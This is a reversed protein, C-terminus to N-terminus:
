AIALLLAPTGKELEARAAESSHSSEGGDYYFGEEDLADIDKCLRLACVTFTLTGEGAGHRFRIKDGVRIDKADGVFPLPYHSVNGKAFARFESESIFIERTTPIFVEDETVFVNVRGKSVAAGDIAVLKNGYFVSCDYDSRTNDFMSAYYCPTHGVVLTKGEPIVFNPYRTHWRLWRANHWKASSAYRFDNEQADDPLWGHVFIFNETEYYDYMSDILNILMEAVRRQSSEIINLLSEGHYYTFFENLTIHTGNVFQLDAVRGTTLSQMLIDEHNGRILIKNKIGSLYELVRRNESGRDFLDGLVVLLHNPNKPDFGAECFSNILATACGHIDSVAFIKLKQKEREMFILSPLNGRDCPDRANRGDLIKTKPFASAM